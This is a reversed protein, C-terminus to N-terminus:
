NQAKLNLWEKEGKKVASQSYFDKSFVQAMPICDKTREAFKEAKELINKCTGYISKRHSAVVDDFNMGCGYAYDFRKNWNKLYDEVTKTKEVAGSDELFWFRLISLGLQDATDQIINLGEPRNAIMLATATNPSLTGNENVFAALFAASYHLWGYNVVSQVFKKKDEFKSSPHKEYWFAALKNEDFINEERMALIDLAIQRAKSNM